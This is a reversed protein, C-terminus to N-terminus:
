DFIDFIDDLFSRKRKRGDYHREDYRREDDEYRREREYRAPRSMEDDFDYEEQPRTRSVSTPPAPRPAASSRAAEAARDMLKDLEGKDLWIGRCGPCYDIEVGERVAMRMVINCNPCLM